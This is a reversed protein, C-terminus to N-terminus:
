WRAQPSRWAHSNYARLSFVLTSHTSPIANHSRPGGSVRSASAVESDEKARDIGHAM